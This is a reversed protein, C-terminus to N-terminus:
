RAYRDLIAFPDIGNFRLQLYTDVHIVGDIRAQWAAKAVLKRLHRPIAHPNM